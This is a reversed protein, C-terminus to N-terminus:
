SAKTISATLIGLIDAIHGVVVHHRNGSVPNVNHVHECSVSHLLSIRVKTCVACLIFAVCAMLVVVFINVNGSLYM